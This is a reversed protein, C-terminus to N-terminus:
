AVRGDPGLAAPWRAETAPITGHYRGEPDLLDIAARDWETQSEQLARELNHGLANSSPDFPFAEEPTRRVWITGDWATMLDDVLPIEDAYEMGDIGQLRQSEIGQFVDELLAAHAGSRYEAMDAALDDLEHSRYARRRADTFPRAPLPRRLVRVVTGSANVIKITYASSDSM